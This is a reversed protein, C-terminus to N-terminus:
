PTSSTAVIDIGTGCANALIIDGIRIPPQTTLAHIAALCDSIKEKPIPSSTKVSLPVRTGAIRALTAVMRKPAACEQIAYDAGRKCTGGSVSAVAGDAGFEATLRCGNPCTICILNRAPKM